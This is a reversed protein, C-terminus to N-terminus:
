AKIAKSGSPLSPLWSDVDEPAQQKKTCGLYNANAQKTLGAAPCDFDESCGNDLAKQLSDDQWGFLYDGHAGSGSNLKDAIDQAM